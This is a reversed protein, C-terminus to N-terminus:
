RDRKSFCSHKKSYDSLFRRLKDIERYRNNVITEAADWEMLDQDIQWAHDKKRILKKILGASSSVNYKKQFTYIKKQEKHIEDEAQAILFKTFDVTIDKFAGKNEVSELLPKPLTLTKM